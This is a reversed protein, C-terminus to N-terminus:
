RESLWCSRIDIGRFFRRNNSRRIGYKLKGDRCYNRITNRHVDLLRAAQTTSYRGTLEVKPEVQTM